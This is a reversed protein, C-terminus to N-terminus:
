LVINMNQLLQYTLLSVIFIQVAEKTLTTASPDWNLPYGAAEQFDGVVHIGLTSTVIGTMDVAFKVKKASVSTVFLVFSLGLLHKKM